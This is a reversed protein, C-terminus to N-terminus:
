TSNYKSLTSHVYRSDFIARLFYTLDEASDYLVVIHCGDLKANGEEPPPFSFMDRFVSSRAALFGSYVRFLTNEAKLILNGDHFWLDETRTTEDSGAHVVNPELMAAILDPYIDLHPLLSHGFLLLFSLPGNLPCFTLIFTPEASVGKCLTLGFFNVLFIVFLNNPLLRQHLCDRRTHNTGEKRMIVAM